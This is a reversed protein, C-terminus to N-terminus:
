EAAAAEPREKKTLKGPTPTEFVVVSGGAAEIAAQAGKTVGIDADEVKYAKSVAGSLMIRARKMNRRVVNAAKLTEMTVEEGQLKALESLRVETTSLSVRSRFGFKPIRM